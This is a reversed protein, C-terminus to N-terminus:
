KNTRFVWPLRYVSHGRWYKQIIIASRIYIQINGRWFPWISERNQNNIRSIYGRFIRQIIISSKEQDLHSTEEGIISNNDEEDLDINDDEGNFPINDNEGIISTDEEWLDYDINDTEVTPIFRNRINISVEPVEIDEFCDFIDQSQKLGIDKMKQFLYQFKLTRGIWEDKSEILIKNQKSINHIDDWIDDNIKELNKIKNKNSFIKKKLVYIEDELLDNDGQLINIDENKLKITSIYADHINKLEHNLTKIRHDKNIKFKNIETPQKGFPNKRIEKEFDSEPNLGLLRRSRPDLDLDEEEEEEEELNIDQSWKDEQIDSIM